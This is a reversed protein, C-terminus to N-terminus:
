LLASSKAVSTVLFYVCVCRFYCFIIISLSVSVVSLCLGIIELTRATGTIEKFHQMLCFVIQLATHFLICPELVASLLIDRQLVSNSLIHRILVSNSLIHRQLVSNSLIHRILKVNFLINRKLVVIYFLLLEYKM